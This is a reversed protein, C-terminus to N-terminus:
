STSAAATRKSASARLRLASTPASTPTAASLMSSCASPPMAACPSAAASGPNCRPPSAHVVEGPCSASCGASFFRGARFFFALPLVRTSSPFPPPATSAAGAAAWGLRLGLFFAAPAASSSGTATSIYCRVAIYLAHGTKTSAFPSRARM